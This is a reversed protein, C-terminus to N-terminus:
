LNHIIDVYKLSFAWNLSYTITKEAIPLQEPTNTQVKDFIWSIFLDLKDKNFLFQDLIKFKLLKFILEIVYEHSNVFLQDILTKLVGLIIKSM